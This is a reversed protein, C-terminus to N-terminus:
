HLSLTRPFMLVRPFVFIVLKGLSWVNLAKKIHKAKGEIGFFLLFFLSPLVDKNM